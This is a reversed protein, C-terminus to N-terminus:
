IEPPWIRTNEADIWNQVWDPAVPQWDPHGLAEAVKDTPVMGNNDIMASRYLINAAAEKGQWVSQEIYLFRADRAVARSQMRLRSFATIRRRYRVSAGAMTFRWGNARMTRLLGMRAAMPIRGLDFISLIRGNNMEGFFDLDWPYCRHYSVHVGDPGLPPMRTSLAIELGLRLFPYM